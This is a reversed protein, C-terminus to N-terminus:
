NATPLPLTISGVVLVSITLLAILSLIIGKRFYVDLNNLGRRKSSMHGVVSVSLALIVLILPISFFLAEM